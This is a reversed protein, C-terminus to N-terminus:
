HMLFRIKGESVKMASTPSGSSTCPSITGLDLQEEKNESACRSNRSTFAMQQCLAVTQLLSSSASTHIHYPLLLPLSSEPRPLPLPPAQTSVSSFILAPPRFMLLVRSSLARGAAIGPLRQFIRHYLASRVPSSFLVLSADVNHRDVSPHNPSVSAQM